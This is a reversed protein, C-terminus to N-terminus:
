IIAIFYANYIHCSLNCLYVHTFPFNDVFFLFMDSITKSFDCVICELTGNRM